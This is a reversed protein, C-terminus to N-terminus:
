RTSTVKVVPPSVLLAVIVVAPVVLALGIAPVATLGRFCGVGVAFVLVQFVIAAGRMWAHGRYAATVIFALWITAVLALVLFAIGGALTDAQGTASAIAIVITVILMAVFEATLLM